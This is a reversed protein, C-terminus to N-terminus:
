LDIVVEADVFAQRTKEINNLANRKTIFGEQPGDLVAGNKSRLQWRIEGGTDRYVRVKAKRAKSGLIPDPTPATVPKSATKATKKTPM